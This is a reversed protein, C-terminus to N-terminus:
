DCTPRQRSSKISSRHKKAQLRRLRSNRSPRTKKRLRPVQLADLVILRLKELCDRRNREQDRFRQSSIVLLGENTLKGAQRAQLRLRADVPLSPSGLANWRLVSKSSVKNVNQGGPGGSRAYSWHLESAPIRVQANIELM